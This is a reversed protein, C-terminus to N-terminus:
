DYLNNPNGGDNNQKTQILKEYCDGPRNSLNFTDIYIIEYGKYDNLIEKILPNNEITDISWLPYVPIIIKNDKKYQLFPLKYETILEALIPYEKIFEELQKGVGKLWTDKGYYFGFEPLSSDANIVGINDEERGRLIRLFSIGLRWNLLPHFRKNGYNLLNTYDAVDCKEQNKRSLLDKIFQLKETDIKGEPDLCLTIYKHLDESLKQTFGSGNPLKDAFAFGTVKKSDETLYERLGLVELESNDIDQHQTFASRLIFAASYIAAKVGQTKFKSLDDDINTFLQFDDISNTPRVQLLVTTKNSSLSYNLYNETNIGNKNLKAIAKDDLYKSYLVDTQGFNRNEGFIFGNNDQNENFTYVQGLHIHQSTNQINQVASFTIPLDTNIIRPISIAFFPKQTNPKEKPSFALYAKPRIALKYNGNQTSITNKIKDFNSSEFDANAVEDVKVTGDSLKDYYFINGQIPNNSMMSNGKKFIPATIAVIEFINKDKTLENSPAYESISMDLDRSMESFAGNKYDHYLVRTRTPMGYMPLLGAEALSEALGEPAVELATMKDIIDQYIDEGILDSTYNLNVLLAQFNNDAIIENCKSIFLNKDQPIINNIFDEKWGFEGHNDNIKIDNGEDDKKINSIGLDRFVNRLLAKYVMRKAIDSNEDMPIFPTPPAANIMGNLNHYYYSDHSNGRCLTMAISYAQGGRGARGVRQQYNYREPPMNAMMTAELSGIDVGVEMTTTVSLVDIQTVKKDIKNSGDIDIFINKFARQREKAIKAETQGTLEECHIRLAEDKSSYYNLEWIESALKTSAINLPNFCHACVGGSFHAHNAGCNNCQYVLDEPKLLTLDFYKPNIFPYCMNGLEPKRDQGYRVVFQKKPNFDDLVSLINNVLVEKDVVSISTNLIYVKDFYAKYSSKLDRYQSFNGYDGPAFEAGWHRFKYGLIRILTNTINKILLKLEDNLVTGKASIAVYLKELEIVPFSVYGKAMTEIAFHNRGFLLGCIKENFEEALLKHFGGDMKESKTGSLLNYLESWHLGNEFYKQFRYDNGVPNIGRKLFEKFLTNPENNSIDPLLNRLPIVNEINADLKKLHKLINYKFENGFDEKLDEIKSTINVECYTKIKENLNEWNWNEELNSEFFTNVEEMISEQKFLGLRFFNKRLSDNYNNRELKNALDAAASRSDSFILLKRKDPDNPSLQRLLNSALVQTVMGYGTRFTRIPSKLFQKHIYTQSCQPCQSPLAKAKKRQNKNAIKFLYGELNNGDWGEVIEGKHTNLSAKVWDGQAEYSTPFQVNELEINISKNLLKSPWFIVFDDYYLYEPRQDLNLEPMSEFQSSIPLIELKGNKELKRGGYFLTGCEDCYLNQLVKKGDIKTKLNGLQIAEIEGTKTHLDDVNKFFLHFRIRPLDLKLQTDKDNYLSRLLLLGRLAKTDETNGFIASNVDTLSLTHRKNDNVFGSKLMQSIQKKNNILFNDGFIENAIVEENDENSGCREYFQELKDKRIKEQDYVDELREEKIIKFHDDFNMGFFDTIYKKSENNTPDLSASSALIRLQPHGPYLGLRNEVLRLLLALETGSSGRNLHLEDVILHFINNNTDEELWEKTSTFINNERDRMLMINLMSYNTILIDPPTEQIDYRTLLESGGVKQFSYLLDEKEDPSLNKELIYKNVKDWTENLFRLEEALKNKNETTNIEASIPTAGNYQAFYIQNDNCSENYFTRAANSDLAKRLRTMQDDVLANMPYLIIAKVSKSRSNNNRQFRPTYIPNGGTVRGKVTKLPTTGSAISFWNYDQNAGNNEKWKFLNKSLYAFLPLLFSETKGSGTGTTIICNKGLAYNKIMQVQHDYLPFDGVLGTLCFNKFLQLEEESSFYNSGDSKKVSELKLDSIKKGSSPYPKILELYPDQALIKHENSLYLEKRKATFNEDDVSFATDIYKFYQEKLNEYIKVPDKM